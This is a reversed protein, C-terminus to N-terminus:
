IKLATILIFLLVTNYKRISLSHNGPQEVSHAKKKDQKRFLSDLSFIKKRNEDRRIKEQRLDPDPDPADQHTITFKEMADTTHSTDVVAEPHVLEHTAPLLEYAPKQATVDTLSAVLLILAYLVIYKM